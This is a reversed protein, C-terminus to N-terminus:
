RFTVGVEALVSITTESINQSKKSGVSFLSNRSYYAYSSYYAWDLGPWAPYLM